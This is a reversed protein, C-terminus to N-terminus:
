VVFVPVWFLVNSLQEPFCNLCPRAENNEKWIHVLHVIYAHHAFIFSKSCEVVSTALLLILFHLLFAFFLSFHCFFNIYVYIAWKLMVLCHWCYGSFHCWFLCVKSIIELFPLVSLTIYSPGGVVFCFKLKCSIVKIAKWQKIECELFICLVAKWCHFFGNSSHIM